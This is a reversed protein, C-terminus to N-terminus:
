RHGGVFPLGAPVRRTYAQWEEGFEAALAEEERRARGLNTAAEEVLLMVMTWTRYLLVGGLAWLLAGVYMPHRVRAFPGSTVLRHNAFLEAGVETSVNYMEGLALRGWIALGVGAASLLSGAVLAVVRLPRSLRVPLPRWLWVMAVLGALAGIAVGFYLPLSLREYSEGVIRGKPRGVARGVGLLVMVFLLLTGLAAIRRVWTEWRELSVM